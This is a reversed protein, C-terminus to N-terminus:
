KSVSMASPSVTTSALQATNTLAGTSTNISFASISDGTQSGIYLFLGNPDIVMFLPTAPATFPSSTIQTLVGTSPAVSFASISGSGRNAVYLFSGLVAVSAPTTATPFSGSLTLAGTSPNISLVSVTNDASNAVYVFTEAPDVTLALPGNGVQVPLGAVPQLVGSAITYAFVAGLNANLVYLFKASPSIAFANPNAFTAFPSGAVATLAGSGSNIAYVSINSSVQNLAFLFTGGSDMVLSVPTLGTATRPLVEHLSGIAPDVTFLSIDNESQNAAYVFKNSPHVRVSAPSNGAPYPSGLITTFRASKNDIRIAAVANATPLSVYATHTSTSGCGLLTPLGMALLVLSTKLSRFFM